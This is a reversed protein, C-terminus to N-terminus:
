ALWMPKSIDVRGEMMLNCVAGKNKREEPARRQSGVTGAMELAPCEAFGLGAPWGCRKLSGWEQDM